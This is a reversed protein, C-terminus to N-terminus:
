EAEKAEVEAMPEELEENLKLMETTNSYQMDKKSKENFDNLFTNWIEDKTLIDKLRIKKDSYSPVSYFGGTQIIYGYKIAADVLGDYKTIGKSFDIYMQAEYFPKCIRNKTTFFKLTSGKYDSESEANEDKELTRTCQVTVTSVYQLGKGGSQMKIKSPHLVGIQDMVHNIVIISTDTKIAPITLAKMLSGVLKARGGMDSAQKGNEADTLLKTQVLAGLSDLVMLFRSKNNEDSEAKYDMIKKYVALIQVTADEVSELLIHEIKTTDCGFNAFFSELAGGESDFYFIHDYNQKLAQATLQAALVSKGTQSEGALLIVKGSPIGNYIDGSIIRNLALVGTDIYNSIQGYKSEKFSTSGTNKRIDKLLSNITSM